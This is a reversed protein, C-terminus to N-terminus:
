FFYNYNRIKLFLKEKVKESNIQNLIKTDNQIILNSVIVIKDKIQDINNYISDENVMMHIENLHEYSNQNGM